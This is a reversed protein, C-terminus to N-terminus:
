VTTPTPPPPPQMASPSWPSAEPQQAGPGPLGPPLPHPPPHAWVVRVIQVSAQPALGSYARKKTHVEGMLVWFPLLGWVGRGADRAAGAPAPLRRQCAGRRRGRGAALRVRALVCVCRESAQPALGSYARKKTYVEYMLVGFAYTDVAKTVKSGAQFM